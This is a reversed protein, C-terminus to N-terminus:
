EAFRLSQKNEEANLLLNSDLQGLRSTMMKRVEAAEHKAQLGLQQEVQLWLPQQRAQRAM